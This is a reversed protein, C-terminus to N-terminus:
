VDQMHPQSPMQQIYSHTVHPNLINEVEVDTVPPFHEYWHGATYFPEPAYLCIIDNAIAELEKCALSSGVPVAVVIYAAKTQRLAAIAAKMSAGTTMGDAVLIITQYAIHPPPRDHRYLANCHDLEAQEKTIVHEVMKTPIHFDEVIDHNIDYTHDWAVTGMSLEKRGPIGLKRILLIDLPLKLASAIEYAVPIGGHSLALVLTDHLGMFASLSKALQKGADRRHKFIGTM